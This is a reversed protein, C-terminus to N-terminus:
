EVPNSRIEESFLRNIDSGSREKTNNSNNTDDNRPNGDMEIDPDYTIVLRYTPPFEGESPSSTDWNREYVVEVEQGPSLNQFPTSAILQSNEYLQVEQQGQRSEFAGQGINQVVGVIRVRGQFQSEQSILSFDIRQAAPDPPPTEPPPTESPPTESPPTESPPTESPPTESPPTESPPTESPPIESPPTVALIAERNVDAYFATIVVQISRRVENTKVWFSARTQGPSFGVINPVRVVEPDSSALSVIAGSEPAPSSLIVEGELRDGGIVRSRDLEVRFEPVQEVPRPEVTLISDRNVSEYSATIIVERPSTVENTKVSFNARTQGPSFGMINPVRVLEPDSSALSVIAGSEPAPSSLVVVGQLREGGTVSLQNLEVRDLSVPSGEPSIVELIAERNVGEYSATIIVQRPSTVENTKVEFSARTQGAPIAVREPVSAVQLDNSVLSVLTEGEPASDSLEIWGEATSGSEVSTPNLTLSTLSITPPPPRWATLIDSVAQQEALLHEAMGNRVREPLDSSLWNDSNLFDQIEPSTLLQYHDIPIIEDEPYSYREGARVLQGASHKVSEINVNGLIVDVVIGVRSNATKVLTLERGPVVVIENASVEAKLLQKDAQFMVLSVPRQWLYISGRSSIVTAGNRCARENLTGASRWSLLVKGKLSCPFIYESDESDKGAQFKWGDYDPPSDDLAVLKTLSRNNGPVFLVDDYREVRMRKKISQPRLDQHRLTIKEGEVFSVIQLASPVRNYISAGVALICSCIIVAAIGHNLKM